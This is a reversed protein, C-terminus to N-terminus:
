QILYCEIVVKVQPNILNPAQYPTVSIDLVILGQISLTIEQLKENGYKYFINDLWLDLPYAGAGQDASFIGVQNGNIRFDISFGGGFLDIGRTLRGQDFIIERNTAIGDTLYFDVIGQDGNEPAYPYIRFSKLVFVRNQLDAINGALTLLSGDALGTFVITKYQSKLPLTLLNLEQQDETEKQFDNKVNM